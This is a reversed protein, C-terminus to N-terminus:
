LTKFLLGAYTLRRLRGELFVDVHGLSKLEPTQMIADTM